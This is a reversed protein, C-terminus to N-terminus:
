WPIKKKEKKAKQSLTEIYSLSAEFEGDQQRLRRLAPIVSWIGGCEAVFLTKKFNM